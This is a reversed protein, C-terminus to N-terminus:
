TWVHFISWGVQVSRWRRRPCRGWDSARERERGREREREGDSKGEREREREMEEEMVAVM